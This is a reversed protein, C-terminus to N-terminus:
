EDLSEDGFEEDDLYEDEYMEQDLITRELANAAARLSDAADYIKRDDSRARNPNDKPM